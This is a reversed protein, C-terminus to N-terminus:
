EVTALVQEYIMHVAFTDVLFVAAALTLVAAVKTLLLAARPVPLALWQHQTNGSWEQTISHILVGALVPPSLYPLFLLVMSAHVGGDSADNLVVLVIAVTAVVLVASVLRIGKLEKLYLAIHPSM